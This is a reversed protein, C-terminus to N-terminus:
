RNLEHPAFGALEDLGALEAAAFDWAAAIWVWQRRNGLRRLIAGSKVLRAYHAGNKCGIYRAGSPLATLPVVNHM